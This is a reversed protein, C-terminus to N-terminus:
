SEPPVVVRYKRGNNHELTLVRQNNVMIRKHLLNQLIAEEKLQLLVIDVDSKDVEDDTLDVPPTIFPPREQAEVTGNNGNNPTENPFIM